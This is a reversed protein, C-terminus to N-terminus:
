GNGGAEPKEVPESVTQTEDSQVDPLEQAFVSVAMAITLIVVVSVSIIQIIIRKNKGFFNMM